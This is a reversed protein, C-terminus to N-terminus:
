SIRSSHLNNSLYLTSINFITAFLFFFPHFPSFYFNELALFSLLLLCYLPSFLTPFILLSSYLLFYYLFFFLFLLLSLYSLFLIFSSFFLLSFTFFYISPFSICMLTSFVYAGAIEFNGLDKHIQAFNLKAEKFNPDYELSKKHAEISALSNGLQGECMGIYNYLTAKQVSDGSIAVNNFDNLSKRYNKMQYLILGRQHRIDPDNSLTM